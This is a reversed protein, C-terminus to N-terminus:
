SGESAIQGEKRYLQHPPTSRAGSELWEKMGEFTAPNLWCLSRLAQVHQALSSFVKRANDDLSLILGDAGVAAQLLFLDKQAIERQKEDFKALAKDCELDFNEVKVVKKRAYMSKLWLRSFKSLHRQSEALSEETVVIRHCIELINLLVQRCSASAGVQSQGAAHTISSDVVLRRRARSRSM